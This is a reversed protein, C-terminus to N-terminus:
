GEDQLFKKFDLNGKGREEVFLRNPDTSFYFDVKGDGVSHFKILHEKLFQTPIKLHYFDNSGPTAECLIHIFTNEEIAKIPIHMWWVSLKPWSEEPQYYKSTYIPTDVRGYKKQYWQIAQSRISM